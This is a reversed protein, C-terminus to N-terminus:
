TNANSRPNAKIWQVAQYASHIRSYGCVACTVMFVPVHNTGVSGDEKSTRIALIEKDDPPFMNVNWESKGCVNCVGPGGFTQLFRRIDAETLLVDFVRVELDSM